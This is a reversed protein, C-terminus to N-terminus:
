KTETTYTAKGFALIGLFIPQLFLLGLGFWTSKGFKKAFDLPFKIALYINYFPILFLFMKWGNGWVLRCSEYLNYFPVIAAWGHMRAKQFIIWRCVIAYIALALTALSSGISGSAQYMAYMTPDVIVDAFAFM